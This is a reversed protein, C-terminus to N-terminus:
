ERYHSALGRSRGTSVWEKGVRRGESRALVSVPCLSLADLAQRAQRVMDLTAAEDRVTALERLDGGAAFYREGAGTLVILRTQLDSSCVDSSWYSIRM